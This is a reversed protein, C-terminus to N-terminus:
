GSLGCRLFFNEWVSFFVYQHKSRIVGDFEYEEIELDQNFISRNAYKYVWIGKEDKRFLHPKYEIGLNQRKKAAVRQAQELEFKQLSAEDQDGTSNTLNKQPTSFNKTPLKDHPPYFNKKPPSNTQFFFKLTFKDSFKWIHTKLYFTETLPFIKKNHIQRFFFQLM